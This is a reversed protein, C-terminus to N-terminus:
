QACNQFRICIPQHTDESNHPYCQIMELNIGRWFNRTTLGLNATQCVVSKTNNYEQNRSLKRLWFGREHIKTIGVCM